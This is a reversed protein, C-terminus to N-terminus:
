VLTIDAFYSSLHAVRLAPQFGAAALIPQGVSYGLRLYAPWLLRSSLRFRRDWWSITAACLMFFLEERAAVFQASHLVLGALEGRWSHLYLGNSYKAFRIL